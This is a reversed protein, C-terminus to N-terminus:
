LRLVTQMVGPDAPDLTATFGLRAVLALMGLNEGLVIGDLAELGDARAYDILIRMLASGLGRGQLDSRVILAYEGTRHDPDCVLRSVGALAGEPTLAVFAIERDYDLQSLRLGMEEPFHRRPALFRLRLDEAATHALFEPYLLADGPRIPRIAYTGEPREVQRRWEAPYPRIALDPNPARRRDEPDIEIRADLAVVGDPDALLPNVDLARICPFDEALHSLAILARNVAAIDAAARGPFGRLVAGVRTRAVLAAALGSDLPPLEVATDALLEVAVGGAGFLVVPGFVPDRGIGLILEQAQDRRIMPQLVFGDLTAEPLAAALRRAIGEAAAVVAEPTALELVVGGVDSKHGVQRSLLKVVLRGGTGLMERAVEGAEAPSRAVRLEPAPIGYAALAAQAEPATLLARGEAAAAQLIAAVEARAAGSAAASAAETARDPVRLLAAQARGWDTLHGVAAVATGPTAYSAVGKARLVDRAARAAAGGMWCAFVPKGGVTGREVRGAVAEAAPGAGARSPTNLVLVADVGPDAAVAEIAALYRAPPADSHIDVPNARSCGPPLAAALRELTAPAFAALTGGGGETLRDLALVGAGGSNTVIALRARELPRFRAATEAAALLESLGRVRLVGARRLAADVVIEEGSLLGTHTAAARAGQPSRGAKVAVVPKLRAAARAASLFKRPAPISEAYVLVARSRGDLALLDLCDGLDVDAMRGLTVVESFGIGHEAAWDILVAAVTASESVLALRGEAPAVASASANLRASPVAIGLSEPGILRLLHPRAADLMAQREGADLGGSVVVAVKCGRAGLAAIAAAVGGAPVAVVALDPAAPLDAVSALCPLGQAEATGLGVPWIAGEFGGAVINALIAGGALAPDGAAGVVAVSRPELVAELNRISM